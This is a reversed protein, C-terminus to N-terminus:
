KNQNKLIDRIEELLIVEASKVVEKKEIEKNKNEEKRTFRNIIKIMVFICASIILFDIINQLFLGYNITADKINISISSFDIGGIIIGIFPMLVNDVLSSVIKSFAGGVIVGVALDIVNGRMIFQKFEDVISQKKIKEKNKM